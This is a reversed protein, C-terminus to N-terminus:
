SSGRSFSIAVWELIRPQSIRHVSSRPLSSDTPDCLTPCSQACCLLPSAVSDLAPFDPAFTQNGLALLLLVKLHGDKTRYLHHLSQNELYNTSLVGSLLQSTQELSTAGTGMLSHPPCSTGQGVEAECAVHGVPCIRSSAQSGSGRHIHDM